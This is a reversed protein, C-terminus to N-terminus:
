GGKPLRLATVHVNNTAIAIEITSDSQLFRAVEVAVAILDNTPVAIALTGLGQTAAPPLDGAQFTATAAGGGNEHFVFLLKEGASCDTVIATNGADVEVTSGAATIMDATATHLAMATVTVAENAM